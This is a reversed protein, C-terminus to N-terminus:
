RNCKNLSVGRLIYVWCTVKRMGYRPARSAIHIRGNGNWYLQFHRVAEVSSLAAGAFRIYERCGIPLRGQNSIAPYQMWYSDRVCTSNHTCSPFGATLLRAVRAAHLSSCTPEASKACLQLKRRAIRPKTATRSTKLIIKVTISAPLPYMHSCILRQSQKKGKIIHHEGNHLSFFTLM